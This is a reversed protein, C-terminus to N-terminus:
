CCSCGEGCSNKGSIIFGEQVGDNIFDITAGELDQASKKDIYVKLGNKEFLEDGEEGKDTLGLGFSPGCCGGDSQFIKIASGQKEEEIIRKFENVAQDSIDMTIEKDNKKNM